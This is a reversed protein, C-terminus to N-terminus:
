QGVGGRRYSDATIIVNVFGECFRDITRSDFTQALEETTLNTTLITPREYRLRADILGHFESKSFATPATAGIEDVILLRCKVLPIIVDKETTSNESFTARINKYFDSATIFKVSYGKNMVEKGISIALHTKGSGCTGMFLIGKSVNPAKAAFRKAAKLANETGPRPIFDELSKKLEKPTMGSNKYLEHIMYEKQFKERKEKERKEEAIKEKKCSCPLPIKLGGWVCREFLEEGCVSCHKGTPIDLMGQFSDVGNKDKFSM